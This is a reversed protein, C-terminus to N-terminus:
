EYPMGARPEGWGYCSPLSNRPREITSVECRAEGQWRRAAVTRRLAPRKSWDCACNDTVHLQSDVMWECGCDDDSWARKLEEFTDPGTMPISRPVVFEQTARMSPFTLRM